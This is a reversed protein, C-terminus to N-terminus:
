VDNPLEQVEERPLADLYIQALANGCLRLPDIVTKGGINERLRPFRELLVSVETLAILVRSTQVGSRIVHQLRNLSKADPSASDLRKVLYALEEMYPRASEEVPRVGLRILSSYASYEGLSSVIPIGIITIDSLHHREIYASTVDVMSVFVMSDCVQRIRDSFYQTTNCALALHTVGCGALQVIAGRIVEWVEDERQALEMSLGMEPVSQVVVKPYSLDGRMRHERSLETHIAENLYRWLAIGSEPGNGTIIGFVPRRTPLSAQSTIKGVLVEPSEQRLAPIVEEPRFEVAWTHAGANTMMTHPPTYQTLVDEDFVQIFDSAESFPNVTGYDASDRSLENPALRSIRKTTGLLRAAADMDFHSNARCHLLVLRRSGDPYYAAGCFSRLEDYIPIGEKGLRNRRSSADKCSTAASNRTLLFWVRHRKFFDVTRRAREPVDTQDGDAGFDSGRAM